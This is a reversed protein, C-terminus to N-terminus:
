WIDPLLVTLSRTTRGTPSFEVAALTFGQILFVLGIVRVVVQCFLNFLGKGLGRRHRFLSGPQSKRNVDDHGLTAYLVSDDDLIYGSPDHIMGTTLNM